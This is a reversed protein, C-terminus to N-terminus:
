YRWWEGSLLKKNERFVDEVSQAASASLDKHQHGCTNTPLSSPIDFSRMIVSPSRFSDSSLYVNAKGNEFAVRAYDWAYYFDQAVFEDHWVGDPDRMYFTVQFPEGMFVQVVCYERGEPSFGQTLIKTNAHGKMDSVLLFLFPASLAFLVTAILLKVAQFINNKKAVKMGRFASVSLLSAVCLLVVLILIVPM